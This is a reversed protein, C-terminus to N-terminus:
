VTPAKTTTESAAKEPYHKAVIRSKKHLGEGSKKIEDVFHPGFIQEDEPVDTREVTVFTGENLLLLQEEKLTTHFVGGREEKQGNKVM